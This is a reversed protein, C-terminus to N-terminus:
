AVNDVTYNGLIKALTSANASEQAETLLIPDTDTLNIITLKNGLAALADINLAINNATDTVTVATVVSAGGAQTAAVATAADAAVESIMLSYSGSMKALTSTGAQFQAYTLEIADTAADSAVITTVTDDLAQLDDFVSSLNDSTDTVAMSNVPLNDALDMLNAATVGSIALTYLDQIKALTDMGNLVLTQTLAMPNNAGSFHIASLKTNATLEAFKTAVTARTDTVDISAVHSDSALSQATAADAASVDVSYSGAIKALTSTSGTYQAATLALPSVLGTQTISTLASSATLATWNSAINDSTDAVGISKVKVSDAILAALSSVQAQTVNIEPTVAFKGLSSTYAAWQTATLNLRGTDTQEIGSVQVGLNQLAGLQANINARTDKVQVSSVRSDALVANAKSAAIGSVTATFGGTLKNLVGSKTFWQSSTLDLAVSPNSQTLATLKKGLGNLGTMGAVIGAATDTVSMSVVKADGDLAIAETATLESLSLTYNGVIKGLAASSLGRRTVTMALANRDTLTISGLKPSGGGARSQLAVLNSTVNASSDKVNVTVVRADGAIGDANAATALNVVVDPDTTFKDLAQQDALWQNATISLAAADSKEINVIRGGLAQLVDLQKGLNLSTDKVDISLVRSDAAISQAKDAAVDAVTARFGGTIKNLAAAQGMWQSASLALSNAPDSQLIGSVKKGLANLGSLNTVIEAGTGTVALSVVKSNAAVTAANAANVGSVALTYGGKIKALTSAKSSLQSATINLPALVGTQTISTLKTTSALTDLKTAINASSDSVHLATVRTDNALTASSVNAATIDTVEMSLTNFKALVSSNVNYQTATVTLAGSDSNTVASIQSGLTQLQDLNLKLNAATDTVQVSSIHGDTAISLAQVATVGSVTARYGGTLKDLVKSKNLWQDSTMALATGADSQTISTVKEGLANLNNLESVVDAASGSLTMSLIHSNGDALTKADTVAVGTVNLGYNGVVKGLATSTSSLQAATVTMAQLPGTQTISTLKSNTNLAVLKSAINASNDKVAISDVLANGSLAEAYAAGVDTVALKVGTTTIKGIVSENQAWQDQTISLPTAVDTIDISNLESGLKKLFAMNRIVNAGTDAIDISVVKKNAALASLQVATANVVALQYTSYIKGLVLADNKVQDATVTMATSVNTRIEKIRLGLEKLADLNSAVNTSSDLISVSKVMADNTYGVAQAATAGSVAVRYSGAIKALAGTNAAYQAATLSLPAVTGTQTIQNIKTNSQLAAINSAIASSGDSIDISTVKANAAVTAASSASVNRVNLAYTGAIKGLVTADKKFQTATISLVPTADTLAVSTVNNAVKQLADLNNNINESTDSVSFKTRPYQKALALATAVSVPSNGTSVYFMSGATVANVQM